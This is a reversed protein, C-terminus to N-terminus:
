HPGSRRTPPNSVHCYSRLQTVGLVLVGAAVAVILRRFKLSSGVIWRMM